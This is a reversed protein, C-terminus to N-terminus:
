ETSVRKFLKELEYVPYKIITPRGHPCTYPFKCRFLGNILEEQEKYGINTNAKVSMKCALRIAAKENFKVRDFGGKFEGVLEFIRRISEEEFGEKLWSPHSTVRFTNIGFEEVEFGLKYLEDIHEKINMFENHSYELQIPFLMSTTYVERTELAKMYREYNIRENAAHIDIMYMINEDQAILYTGLALGVPKIFVDEKKVEESNYSEEDENVNFNLRLAEITRFNNEKEDETLALDESKKTETYGKFTNDSENIASRITSFLLDNLSELKSFKIDQKTPHINVDILTPDTEISIVVIPFKNEALVTHYADKITRSVSLNSVVRGNVLTIMYNRNSKSINLNSIYGHIIYDYNEADIKIMNKATNYGFIEHICKYMDNSGSTRFIEKNDNILTFSIDPHSLAIKELFGVTLSLEAQLSKMFKLRAPTNYFLESVEIITGNRMSGVKNVLFKGDKIVLYTSENGDYTDLSVNSVSSIAALAEGRFGLTNIFYLDNENKIKSTAHRSFCLMADDKSMGCGDDVIKILKTGSLLLEVKINKSGADISNEVLEKVVNGIREVVEGAAIKNALSESMVNIKNM